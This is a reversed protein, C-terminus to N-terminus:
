LNIYLQTLIDLDAAVLIHLKLDVPSSLWCVMRAWIGASVSWVWGLSLLLLISCFEMLSSCKQPMQWCTLFSRSSATVAYLLPVSLDM